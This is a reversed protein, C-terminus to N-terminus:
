CVGVGNCSSSKLTQLRRRMVRMKEAASTAGDFAVKGAEGYAPTQREQAGSCAPRRCEPSTIECEDEDGDSEDSSAADPARSDGCDNAERPALPARSRRAADDQASARPEDPGSSSWLAVTRNSIEEATPKRTAAPIRPSSSSIGLREACETLMAEYRSLAASPRLSVPPLEVPGCAQSKQGGRPAHLNADCRSACAHASDEMVTARHAIPVGAVPSAFTVRRGTRSKRRLQTEAAALYADLASSASAALASSSAMSRNSCHVEVARPCTSLYISKSLPVLGSHARCIPSCEAGRVGASVDARRGAPHM